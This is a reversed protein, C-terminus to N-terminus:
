PPEVIFPKSFDLVQGDDTLAKFSISVERTDRNFSVRIESASAIGQTGLIVKRAMKAIRSTSPNRAGLIRELVTIGQRLDRYWEGRFFDFRTSLFQAAAEKRDKVLTIQRNTLHLDGVVPNEATAVTTLKFDM